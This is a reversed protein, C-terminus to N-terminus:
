FAAALFACIRILKQNLPKFQLTERRSDTNDRFKLHVVNDGSHKVPRTGRPDPKGEFTSALIQISSSQQPLPSSGKCLNNRWTRSPFDVKNQPSKHLVM